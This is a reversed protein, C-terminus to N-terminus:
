EYNLIIYVPKIVKLFYDTCRMAMHKELLLCIYGYAYQAENTQKVTSYHNLITIFVDFM